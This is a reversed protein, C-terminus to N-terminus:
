KKADPKKADGGKADGAAAGAAPAAGPAAAAAGEAGPAAAGAEGEVPTAAKVEETQITPAVVTAVTFDSRDVAKSGEPLTVQSIHISDGIELGTLDIDISKPIATAKVALEITHEIINLVGGEKLGPSAAENKFRVPIDVTIISDETIRLFDVHTLFDKVPDLQYDRPIAKEVKGGVDIDFLTTMFGGGHLLIYLDNGSLSIGTPAQKGGYIVAPVRQQRRLARAAGKGVRDRAEAKLVKTVSM